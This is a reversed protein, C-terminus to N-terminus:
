LPLTHIVLCPDDADQKRSFGLFKALERMDNNEGLDRSYLTEFGERRAVEILHRM